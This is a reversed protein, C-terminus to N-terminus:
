SRPVPKIGPRPLNRMSCAVLGRPGCSRIGLKLAQGQASAVVILLRRIVALSYGGSAAVLSLVRLLSPIGRLKQFLEFINIFWCSEESPEKAMGSSFIM